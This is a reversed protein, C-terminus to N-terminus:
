GRNEGHGQPPEQGWEQFWGFHGKGRLMAATPVRLWWVWKEVGVRTGLFDLIKGAIQM